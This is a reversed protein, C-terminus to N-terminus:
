NSWYFMVCRSMCIFFKGSKKVSLENVLVVHVTRIKSCKASDISVYCTSLV